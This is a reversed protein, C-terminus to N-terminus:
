LLLSAPVLFMTIVANWTLPESLNLKRNSKPVTGYSNMPIPTIVGDAIATVAPVPTTVLAYSPVVTAADLRNVRPSCKM